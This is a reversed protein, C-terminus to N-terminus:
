AVGHDLHATAEEVTDFVEWYADLQMEDLIRRMGRSPRALAVEGDSRRVLRTMTVLLGVGGPGLEGVGRLELVFNRYGQDLLHQVERAADFLRPDNMLSGFHSLIVVTGDVRIHVPM